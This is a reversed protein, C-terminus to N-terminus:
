ASWKSERCISMMQTVIANLEDILRTIEAAGEPSLEGFNALGRPRIEQLSVRMFELTTKFAFIASIAVPDAIEHKELFARMITRFRAIQAALETPQSDNADLIYEAFLTRDNAEGSAARLANGLSKDMYKFVALLHRAQADSFMM